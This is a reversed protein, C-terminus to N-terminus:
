RVVRKYDTQKKKDDMTLAEMKQILQQAKNM